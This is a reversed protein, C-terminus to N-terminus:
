LRFIWPLNQETITELGRKPQRYPHFNHFIDFYYNWPMLCCWLALFYITACHGRTLTLPPSLLNNEVQTRFLPPYSVGLGFLPPVPVGRIGRVNRRHRCYNCSYLSWGRRHTIRNVRHVPQFQFQWVRCLIITWWSSVKGLTLPWLELNFNRNPNPNCPTLILRNLPRLSNHVEISHEADIIKLIYPRM